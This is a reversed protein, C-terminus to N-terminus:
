RLETELCSAYLITLLVPTPLISQIVSLKKLRNDTHIYESRGEKLNRLVRFVDLPRGLNITLFTHLEEKNYGCYM